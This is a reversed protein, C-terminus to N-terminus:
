IILNEANIDHEKLIDYIKDFVVHLTENNHKEDYKFSRKANMQIEFLASAMDNAKVVRNFEMREDPDNLDYEITATAM